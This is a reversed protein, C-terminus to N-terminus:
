PRHHWGGRVETVLIRYGTITVIDWYDGRPVWALDMSCAAINSITPQLPTPPAVQDYM